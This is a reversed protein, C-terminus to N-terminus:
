MVGQVYMIQYKMARAVWYFTNSNSLSTYFKESIFSYDSKSPIYLVREEEEFSTNPYFLIYYGVGVVTLIGIFLTIAIIKFIKKIM